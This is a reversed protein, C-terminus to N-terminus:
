NKIVVVLVSLFGCSIYFEIMFCAHGKMQIASDQTAENKLVLEEVETGFRVACHKM